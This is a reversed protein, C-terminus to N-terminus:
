AVEGEPQTNIPLNHGSKELWDAIKERSWHHSDNLHVIIQVLADRADPGCSPCWAVTKELDPIAATLIELTDQQSIAPGTSFVEKFAAEPYELAAYYEAHVISKQYYDQHGHETEISTAYGYIVTGDQFMVKVKENYPPTSTAHQIAAESITLHVKM